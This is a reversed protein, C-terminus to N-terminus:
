IIRYQKLVSLLIDASNDWTLKKVAKHAEIGRFLVEARDNYAARLQSIASARNFKVWKGIGQYHRNPVTEWTHAIVWGLKENFFETVGDACTRILPRGTVAAQLDCLGFGEGCSLSTFANLTGYWASLQEETWIERIIKVRSDFCPNVSCDPFCKLDLRVNSECPFAQLFVQIVENFQKREVFNWMRGACGFIFEARSCDPLRFKYKNPDYGLPVVEVPVKTGSKVLADATYSSTTLILHCNNLHDVASSPLATSEWLTFRVVRKGDKAKSELIDSKPGDIEIIYKPHKDEFILSNRFQVPLKDLTAHDLNIPVFNIVIGRRQLALVLEITFQGYGSYPNAHGRITLSKM